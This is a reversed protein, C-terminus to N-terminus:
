HNFPKVTSPNFPQYTVVSPHRLACITDKKNVYLPLNMIIISTPCPIDGSSSLPPWMGNLKQCLFTFTNSNAYPCQIDGSVSTPPWM